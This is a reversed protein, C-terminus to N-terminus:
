IRHAQSTGRPNPIRSFVNLICGAKSGTRGTTWELLVHFTVSHKFVHFFVIRTILCGRLRRPHSVSLTCKGPYSGSSLSDVCFCLVPGYFTHAHTVLLSTTLTALPSPSILRAQSTRSPNLLLAFFTTWCPVM